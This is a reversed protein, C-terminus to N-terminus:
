LSVKHAKPEPSSFFTFKKIFILSSTKNYKGWAKALHRALNELLYLLQEKLIKSSISMEGYVGKFAHHIFYLILLQMDPIGKDKIEWFSSKSSYLPRGCAAKKAGGLPLFQWVCKTMPKSSNSLISLGRTIWPHFISLRRCKQETTLYKTKLALEMAHHLWKKEQNHM